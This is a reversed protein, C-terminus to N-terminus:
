DTKTSHKRLWYTNAYRCQKWVLTVIFTQSHFVGRWCMIYTSIFLRNCAKEEANNKAIVKPPICIQM